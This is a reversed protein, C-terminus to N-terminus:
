MLTARPEIALKFRAIAYPVFGILSWALISPILLGLSNGYPALVGDLIFFTVLGPYDLALVAQGSLTGQLSLVHFISGIAAGYIACSAFIWKGIKLGQTGNAREFKSGIAM